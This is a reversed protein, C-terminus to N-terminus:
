SVPTIELIPGRTEVSDGNEVYLKSVVGAVKCKIENQMKMAELIAVVTDKEVKDRAQVLLKVIMGPMPAVVTNESVDATGSMAGSRKKAKGELVVDLRESGDLNVTFRRSGAVSGADEIAASITRNGIKVTYAGADGAAVSVPKAKPIMQEPPPETTAPAKGESRAKLFATAVQPFLACSLADELKDSWEQAVVKAAALEPELLDAPRCDIVEEDGIAIRAVDPDIAAPSRGYKGRVYDKVEESVIKYREGAVVNFVAQTGVIQSTPTVLPPYGLDKRVRATEELVDALKDSAGQMELQSLLNSLM